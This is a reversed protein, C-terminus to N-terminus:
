RIVANIFDAIRGALLWKGDFSTDNIDTRCKM